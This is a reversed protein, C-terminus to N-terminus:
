RNLTLIFVSYEGGFPRPQKKYTYPAEPYQAQLRAMLAESGPSEIVMFIIKKWEKSKHHDLCARMDTFQYVWGNSKIAPEEILAQTDPSNDYEAYVWGTKCNRSKLDQYLSFFTDCNQVGSLFVILADDELAERMMKGRVVQPPIGGESSFYIASAIWTFYLCALAPLGWIVTRAVFRNGDQLLISTIYQAERSAIITLLLFSVGIRRAAVETMLGPFVTFFLAVMLLFGLQGSRGRIMRGFALLTLIIVLSTTCRVPPLVLPNTWHTPNVQYLFTSSFIDAGNKAIALLKEAITTPASLYPNELPSLLSWDGVYLGRAITRWGLWFALGIGMVLMKPLRPLWEKCRFLVLAGFFVPPGFALFMGSPYVLRILGIMFSLIGFRTWTPSRWAAIWAWLLPIAILGPLQHLFPQRSWWNEPPGFGLIVAGLFAAFTGSVSRMLFFFLIFKLAAVGSSLYRLYLYYLDPEDTHGLLTMVLNWLLGATTQPHYGSEHLLLGSWRSWYVYRFPCFETDWGLPIHNLLYFQTSLLFASLLIIGVFEVSRIPAMYTTRDDDLTRFGLSLMAIILPAIITLIMGYVRQNQLVCYEGLMSVAVILCVRFSTLKRHLLSLLAIGVLSVGISVFIHHFFHTNYDRPYLYWMKLKAVFPTLVQLCGIGQQQANSCELVSFTFMVGVAILVVMSTILLRLTSEYQPSSRHTM